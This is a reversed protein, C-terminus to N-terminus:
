LRRLTFMGSQRRAKVRPHGEGHLCIPSAAPSSTPPVHLPVLRRSRRCERMPLNSCGREIAHSNAHAAFRGHKERSRSTALALDGRRLSHVICKPTDDAGNPSVVICDHASEINAAIIPLALACATARGSAILIRRDLLGSETRESRWSETKVLCCRTSSVNAHIVSPFSALQTHFRLRHIRGRNM